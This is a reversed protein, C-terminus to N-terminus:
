SLESPLMAAYKKLIARLQNSSSLGCMKTVNDVKHGESILQIAREVRLKDAYQGITIGTTKKFLRTLNRPSMSVEEALREITIEQDLNQSLYDQVLHVRNEIHNRFQLFVSLQPDTDARRLFVVIEKAIKIAFVPGFLEELIYLSLDIGSAVGASSYVTGDKVFLRDKQLLAEPYRARFDQFYKWHTTCSKNDLIGAQALIYAGTCVSCLKAGGALQKNLWRYFPECSEQFASDLFLFSEMGPVFVYDVESLSYNNFDEIQSFVLGASSKLDALGSDMRIFRAEVPAGYERAEYFVHAPGTLDLLQVEPPVVFFILHTRIDMSKLDLTTQQAM